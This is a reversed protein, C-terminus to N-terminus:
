DRVFVYRYRYGSSEYEAVLRNRTRYHIDDFELNLTRQLNFDILHIFLAMRSNSGDDGNNNYLDTVRRIRWDGNMSLQNDLYTASGDGQFAFRGDEYGTDFSKWNIFSNREASKLRWTGELRDEMWEKSCSCLLIFPALFFYLLTKKM